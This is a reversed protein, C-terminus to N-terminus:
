QFLLRVHEELQGMVLDESDLQLREFKEELECLRGRLEVSDVDLILLSFFSSVARFNAAKGISEISGQVFDDQAHM